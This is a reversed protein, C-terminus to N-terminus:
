AFEYFGPAHIVTKKSQSPSLKQIPVKTRSQFPGRDTGAQRRFRPEAVAYLFARNGPPLFCLTRTSAFSFLKLFPSLNLSFLNTLRLFPTVRVSLWLIGRPRGNITFLEHVSRSINKVIYVPINSLWDFSVALCSFVGTRPPFPVSTNEIM